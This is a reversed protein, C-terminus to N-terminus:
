AAVDTVQLALRRQEDMLVGGYVFLGRVADAFHSEPRFAEVEAIQQAFYVGSNIGAIGVTGNDAMAPFANSSSIGVGFLDPMIANRVFGENNGGINVGQDLIYRRLYYMVTNNVVLWRGDMPWNRDDMTKSIQVISHILNKVHADTSALNSYLAPVAVKNTNPITGGSWLGYIFSDVTENIQVSAKRAWDQMLAPRTQVEDVDHVMINFYKQQDLSLTTEADTTDEPSELATNKAYDRVTPSTSLNGINIKNGVIVESSMDTVFSRWVNARNLERYLAAAWLEPILHSVAM